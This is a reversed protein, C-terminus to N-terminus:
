GSWTTSTTSCISWPPSDRGAPRLGPLRERRRRRREQRGPPAARGDPQASPRLDGARQLPQLDGSGAIGGAGGPENTDGRPLSRPAHGDPQDRGRRRARPRVPRHRDARYLRRGPSEARQLHAPPHPRRPPPLGRGSERRVRAPQRGPVPPGRGGPREAPGSRDRRGDHRPRLDEPFARVRPYWAAVQGLAARAGEISAVTGVACTVGGARLAPLYRKIERPSILPCAGDIVIADRHLADAHRLRADAPSPAPM